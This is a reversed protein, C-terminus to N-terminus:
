RDAALSSIVINPISLYLPLVVRQPLCYFPQLEQHVCIAVLMTHNTLMHARVKRRKCKNWMFCVCHQKSRAVVIADMATAAM